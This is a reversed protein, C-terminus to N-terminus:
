LSDRYKSKITGWSMTEVPTSGCGVPWAGILWIPGEPGCPSDSHLSYPEEPNEDGCFLPDVCMNEDNDYQDAICGVWDGHSNGFVDSWGIDVSSQSTCEFPAGGDNFAVICKLILPHSGGSCYFASGGSSSSTSTNHAITSYLFRPGGSYAAVAGGVNAVNGTMTARELEAYGYFWMAGGSGGQNEAFLVDTFFPTCGTHVSVAGGYTECRNGVFRCHAFDPMCDGACCAAGAYSYSYNGEFTCGFLQVSSDGCFLAGASGATNETFACGYLILSSGSSCYIVGGRESSEHMASNGTFTCNVIKPSSGICRIAGGGDEPTLGDMTSRVPAYGNRITIWSLISNPGEGSHFSFGRHPDSSTGQCDIICMSPDVGQSVLTIAKGTYDLDRNGEGTFIGGALTIVDGGVCANIAQQITPFDGTGDPRVTYTTGSASGAVLLAVSLALTALRM